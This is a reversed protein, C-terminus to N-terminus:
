KFDPSGVFSKDILIAHFVGFHFSFKLKLLMFVNQIELRSLEARLSRKPIDLQPSRDCVSMTKLGYSNEFNKLIYSLCQWM